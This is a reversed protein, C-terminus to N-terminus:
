SQAGELIRIAQSLTQDLAPSDGDIQQSLYAIAKSIRGAQAKDREWAERFQNYVKGSMTATDHDALPPAKEPEHTM